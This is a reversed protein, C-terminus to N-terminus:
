EPKDHHFIPRVLRSLRLGLREEQFTLPEAGAENPNRFAAEETDHLLKGAQGEDRKGLLAWATSFTS